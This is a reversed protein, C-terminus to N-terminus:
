KEPPETPGDELWAVLDGVTILPKNLPRPYRAVLEGAKIARRISWVSLGTADAAEELTYSLKPKTITASTQADAVALRATNM